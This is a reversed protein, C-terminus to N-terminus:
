TAKFSHTDEMYKMVDKLEKKAYLEGIEQKYRDWDEPGNPYRPRHPPPANIHVRPPHEMAM